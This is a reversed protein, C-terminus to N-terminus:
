RRVAHRVQGAISPMSHTRMPFSVSRAASLFSSRQFSAAYRSRLQPRLWRRPAPRGSGGTGEGTQPLPNPLPCVKRTAAGAARHSRLRGVAPSARAPELRDRRGSGALRDLRRAGAPQRRGRARLQLRGVRRRPGRGPGCIRRRREDSRRHRHNDLRGRGLGLRRHRRGRRRQRDRWRHRAARAARLAARAAAAPAAAGAPAARPRRGRRQRRRRQRGRRRLATSTRASIPRPAPSRSVSTPGRTSSRAARRWSCSTSRGAHQRRGPAPGTYGTDLDHQRLRHRAPHHEPGLHQVHHRRRDHQREQQPLRHQQAHHAGARRDAHHDHESRRGPQALMNYQTGNMFSTNNYWTNGGTSHNAYFGSAKNKWAVNNQVIHRIGTQSSGMKFGNGNGDAPNTTGGNAFGNM